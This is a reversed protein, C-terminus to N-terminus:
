KSNNKLELFLSEKVRFLTIKLELFLSVNWENLELFFSVNWQLPNWYRRSKQCIGFSSTENRSLVTFDQTRLVCFFNGFIYWKRSFNCFIREIDLFLYSILFRLLCFYTNYLYVLYVLINVLERNFDKFRPYKKLIAAITMPKDSNNIEHIRNARTEDTLKLLIFEKNTDNLM